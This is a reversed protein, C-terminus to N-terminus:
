QVLLFSSAPLAITFKGMQGEAEQTILLGFPASYQPKECFAEIGAIDRASPHGHQYKIEIPIRQTGITAIFDVEPETQRQPWWAVDLGPIGKLFYGMISEILHGAVTRVAPTADALAAPAIPVTEQLVGNRVFHDCVCLKNSEAHKKLLMELPAVTHILMSDALFQLCDDVNSEGVKGQLVQGIEQAIRLPRVHQGAYRCVLRFTERVLSQDLAPRHPRHLSDFEITKNVVEDVIQQRLLGPDAKAAKAHCLPYGGLESFYGFAAHRVKSHKRGYAIMERWFETEKWRELGVTQFGRLDGLGRIGAIEGLRLPGLEITTMRGALSDGGKVIRLASSGTVFTRATIHDVLSKLQESWKHLNQLEDFLLYITEGRRAAANISDKLVNKEYWGVIAEVPNGIAGLGPVDDFQVRLIRQPGIREV